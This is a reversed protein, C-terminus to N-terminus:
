RLELERDGDSGKGAYVREGKVRVRRVGEHENRTLGKGNEIHVGHM